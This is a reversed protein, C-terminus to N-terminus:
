PERDNQTPLLHTPPDSLLGWEGTCSWLSRWLTDWSSRSTTGSFSPHPHCPILLSEVGSHGIAPGFSVPVWVTPLSM